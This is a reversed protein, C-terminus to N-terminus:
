NQYLCSCFSPEWKSSSQCFWLSSIRYHAFITDLETSMKADNSLQCTVVGLDGFHPQEEWFFGEGAFNLFSIFFARVSNDIAFGLKESIV